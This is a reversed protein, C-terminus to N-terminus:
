EDDQIKELYDYMRQVLGSDEVKEALAAYGVQSINTLDMGLPNDRWDWYQLEKVIELSDGYYINANDISEDIITRLDDENDIQGDDMMERLELDLDDLFRYINFENAGSLQKAGYHSAKMSSRRAPARRVKSRTPSSRRAPKKAAPKKRAIAKELDAKKMTSFGRIKLKKARARLTKLLVKRAM